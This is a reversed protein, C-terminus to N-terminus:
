YMASTFVSGSYVSGSETCAIQYRANASVSVCNWLNSSNGITSTSWTAGADTSKYISGDTESLVINLGNASCSISTYNKNTLGELKTWSVGFNTSKYVFGNNIAAYQIDGYSTVATDVWNENKYPDIQGTGQHWTVGYDHSYYVYQAVITQYQGTFSLGVSCNPFARISQSVNSSEDYKTWTLGYDSSQYLGDGSSVISQYQGNLSINTNIITNTIDLSKVWTKGYNSSIYISSGDSATQYKGNFSMSLCCNPSPTITFKKKWSSAEGYKSSCYIEGLDNIANQYHGDSSVSVKQWNKGTLKNIGSWISGFSQISDSIDNTLVFAIPVKYTQTVNSVDYTTTKIYNTITRENESNNLSLDNACLDLLAVGTNGYTPGPNIDISLKITLGDKIYIIDGEQFGDKISTNADRNKFPNRAIARQLKDNVEKLGSIGSLDTVISGQVDFNHGNSINILASKDFIGNNINFLGGGVTINGGFYTELTNIFDNYMNEFAGVSLINAVTLNKIFEDSDITLEDKELYGTSSSYNSVLNVGNSDNVVGIKYNLDRVSYKIQLAKTLNKSLIENSLNYLPFTQNISYSGEGEFAVSTSLINSM